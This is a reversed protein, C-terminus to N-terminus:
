VLASARAAWTKMGLAGYATLAADLHPRARDPDGRAVFMAALDHQAHALWPRAGMRREIDIAAELHREADDFRRLTTALVGSAAPWRASSPRSRRWRTSSSSRPWCRTSSRRGASTAWRRVRTPCCRWPSSGSPTATSGSSTARWCPTSRRARRASAASRPRWTRRRARSACSRRTSTCPAASRPRRAGGPSGARPAARLARGAAHRRRELEGGAARPGPDGRHAARRGRVPGGHPRAHDQDHRHALAARAPPARGGLEDLVDLEVDVAARDGLEWYSNLRHEHGEYIREKDGIREALAILRTTAAIGDGQRVADPGEIAVWQGELALALTAPDGIREAM